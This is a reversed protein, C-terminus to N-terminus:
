KLNKVTKVVKIVDNNRMAPFLPISLAKKYYKESSPCDGEGTGFKKRYYPQLHVPIYHVQTGIGKEGLENMVETRSKGVEEFDIETAYLHFVTKSNKNEAATKLWPVSSFEYNYIDVINKRKIAFEETREIQVCGLAAHIDSMRYNYGSFQMEYYWPASNEPYYLSSPEKIMGHNRLAKMRYCLKESNTTIVGGEGCTITKVPHFSFITMDSYRCNGALSGDSYRSGWAHSADEIVHCGAKKAQNNIEKMRCTQGAFHVPIVLKVDESLVPKITEPSINRTKYEIDAFLPKINCYDMANATALFTNTSTIGSCNEPLSLAAVACHLAATGSSVAVAYRAGTYECIKKEFERVKPGQTLFESDLVDAVANKEEKGINQKGYGLFRETM